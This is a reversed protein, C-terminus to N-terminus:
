ITKSGTFVKKMFKKLSGGEMEFQKPTFTIQKQCKCKQNACMHVKLITGKTNLDTWASISRASCHDNKSKDRKQFDEGRTM